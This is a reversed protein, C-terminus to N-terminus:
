LRTLIIKRVGQYTLKGIIYLMIPGKKSVLIVGIGHVVPIFLNFIVWAVSLKQLSMSTYVFVWLIM